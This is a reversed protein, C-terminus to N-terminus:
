EVASEALKDETQKPMYESLISGFISMNRCLNADIHNCLCGINEYIGKISDSINNVLNEPNTEVKSQEPIAAEYGCSILAEVLARHFDEYFTKLKQLQSLETNKPYSSNIIKCYLENQAELYIKYKKIVMKM